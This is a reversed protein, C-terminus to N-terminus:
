GKMEHAEKFLDSGYGDEKIEEVLLEDVGNKRMADVCQLLSISEVNDAFGFHMKMTKYNDPSLKRV